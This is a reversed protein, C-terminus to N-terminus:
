RKRPRTPTTPGFVDEGGRSDKLLLVDPSTSGALHWEEEEQQGDQTQSRGFSFPLTNQKQLIERTRQSKVPTAEVLVRREDDKPKPKVKSPAKPKPPIPEAPQSKRFTRSMSIERNLPARKKAANGMNKTREEEALSLTLSRSLSRSRDLGTRDQTVTRSSSAVSLTPSGRRPRKKPHPQPSSSRSANEDKDDDSLLSHQQPFLRTRIEDCLDAFSSKFQPEIVDTFFRQPWDQIDHDKDHTDLSTVLQWTSLKDIYTLIREEVFEKHLSPEEQQKKRKKRPSTVDPLGPLSHVFMHLLLQIAIERREMSEFWQKMWESDALLEETREHTGGKSHSGTKKGYSLAYWMVSEETGTIEGEKEVAQPLEERYKDSAARGSLLLPEILALLPHPGNSASPANVLKLTPILEAIPMISEPLWLTQLYVREVLADSTENEIDVFPYDNTLAKEQPESWQVNGSALKFAFSM